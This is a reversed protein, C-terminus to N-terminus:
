RTVVGASLWFVAYVSVSNLPMSVVKCLQTRNEPIQQERPNDDRMNKKTDYM